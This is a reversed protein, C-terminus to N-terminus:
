ITKLKNAVVSKLHSIIEGFTMKHWCYALLIRDKNAKFAIDKKTSSIGMTGYNCIIEDIYKNKIRRHFFWRLNHEWDANIPYKLNFKGIKKFIRSNFFIAQHCINKQMLKNDNFEGAYVGGFLPSTVNGYIVDVPNDALFRDVSAIVEDHYLTDDSGLFYIWEGTARKIGKNMADYIGLDSESHFHISNPYKNKYENVINPTQDTSLNDMVLIEISKFTQMCISELTDGLSAESNYTPIIFTFRM